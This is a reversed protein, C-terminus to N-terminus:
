DAHHTGKEHNYGGSYLGGLESKWFIIQGIRTGQGIVAPGCRNHLTGAVHGSFGSDYLGSTVFLGNRNLTSRVILTAAVGEPLDVYMDSMFDVVTHPAITWFSLDVGDRRSPVPEMKGGGRMQKGAESIVFTNQENISFLVDCTFDIANPQIQLEPDNIGTVWGQEIAIKPSIIM